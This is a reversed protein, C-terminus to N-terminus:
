HIPATGPQPLEICYKAANIRDLHDGWMYQFKSLMELRPKKYAEYQASKAVGESQNKKFYAIADQLTHVHDDGQSEWDICFKYHAVGIKNYDYRHKAGLAKSLAINHEAKCNAFRKECLATLNLSKSTGMSLHHHFTFSAAMMSESAKTAHAVVMDKPLHMSNESFNSILIYFPWSPLLGIVDHTAFM